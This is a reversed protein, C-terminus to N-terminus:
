LRSGSAKVLGLLDGRASQSVGRGFHTGLAWFMASVEELSYGDVPIGRIIVIGRGEQIEDFARALDADLAPHRCHQPLIQGLTLGKEHFGDLLEKLAAPHRATLDFALGDKRMDAGRWAMRTDKLAAM